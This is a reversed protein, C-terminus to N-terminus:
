ASSFFIVMIANTVALSSALAWLTFGWRKSSSSNHDIPSDNPDAGPYTWRSCPALFPSLGTWAQIDPEKVHNESSDLQKPNCSLTPPLNWRFSFIPALGIAFLYRSPFIFLVKFLSDFLVQFQQFPLSPFWHWEGKNKRRQLAPANHLPKPWLRNVDPILRKPLLYSTRRRNYRGIWVGPLVSTLWKTSTIIVFHNEKGRRSVRVLSDLM